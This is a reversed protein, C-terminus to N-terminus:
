SAGSSSASCSPSPPVPMLYFCPSPATGLISFWIIKKRGFRDALPGGLLTGAMGGLQLAFLCFQASELPLKFKEMYYFAYYGTMGALYVFKSFLMLILIGVAFAVKWNVPRQRSSARSDTRRHTELMQRRYWRSVLCQIAIGLAATLVFWLLGHIGLPAVLLAAALPALAQGTNGGVQFISQALGKGRTALHAVRSSEPHLVSSGIGILMASMLLMWLTSSYALGAMGLLTFGMGAPLLLPMPKKDTAAGILPQLVSATVNLAFAVWGIQAFSLHLNQQFLPFVAPVVAQMADNLLHAASVFLLIYFSQQTQAKVSPSASLSM